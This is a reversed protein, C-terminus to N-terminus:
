PNMWYQLSGFFLSGQKNKGSNFKDNIKNIKEVVLWIALYRYVERELLEGCLDGVFEYM